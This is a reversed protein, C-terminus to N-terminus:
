VKMLINKNHVYFYFIIVDLNLPNKYNKKFKIENNNIDLILFSKREIVVNVM